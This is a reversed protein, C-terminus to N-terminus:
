TVNLDTGKRLDALAQAAINRAEPAGIEGHKGIVHKILKSERGAIRRQVVYFLGTTLAKVGFGKLEGDWYFVREGSTPLEIKSLNTNNIKIVPM